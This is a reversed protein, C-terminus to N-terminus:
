ITIKTTTNSESLTFDVEKEFETIFLDLKEIEESM